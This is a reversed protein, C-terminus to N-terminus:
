GRPPVAVRTFDAAAVVDPFLPRAEALFGDTNTYRQSFHTLVLKRAGAERAIAAAQGASAGRM